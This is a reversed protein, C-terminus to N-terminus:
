LIGVYICATDNCCLYLPLTVICVCHEMPFSAFYVFVLYMDQMKTSLTSQTVHKLYKVMCKYM